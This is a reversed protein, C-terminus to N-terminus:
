EGLTFSIKLPIAPPPWDRLPTTMHKTDRESEARSNPLVETRSEWKGERRLPPATIGTVGSGWAKSLDWFDESKGAREKGPFVPIAPKRVQSYLLTVQSAKTREARAGVISNLGQPSASTHTKLAGSHKLNVPHLWSGLAPRFAPTVPHGAVEKGLYSPTFNYSASNATNGPSRAKASTGVNKSIGSWYKCSWTNFLSYVHFSVGPWSAGGSDVLQGLWTEQPESKENAFHPGCKGRTIQYILHSSTHSSAKSVILPQLFWIPKLVKYTSPTWM